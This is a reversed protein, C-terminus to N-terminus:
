SYLLHPTLQPVPNAFPEVVFLDTLLTYNMVM